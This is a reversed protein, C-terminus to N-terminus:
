YAIIFCHLEKSSNHHDGTAESANAHCTSNPFREIWPVFPTQYIMATTIQLVHMGFPLLADYPTMVARPNQSEFMALRASAPSSYATEQPGSFFTFSQDELEIKCRNKETSFQHDFELL